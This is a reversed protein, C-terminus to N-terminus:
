LAVAEDLLLLDCAFGLEERPAIGMEIIIRTGEPGTCLLIQDATEKIVTFGLGMSARKSWGKLLTARPLDDPDIGSGQDEIRIRLKGDRAGVSAWGGNGHLLANTAAESACLGMDAARGGPMGLDFAVERVADRVTRIDAERRIPIQPRDVPWEGAMEEPDCLRMKGSTVAYLVEGHIRRRLAETREAERSQYLTFLPLAALGAYLFLPEQISPSFPRGSLYNDACLVGLLEEGVIIPIIALSNVPPEFTFAPYEDRPHNSFFFPRDRRVVDLMPTRRETIPIREVGTERRGQRDIGFVRDLRAHHQEYLFVGAREVHLDERLASVLIEVARAPDPERAICRAASVLAHLGPTSSSTTEASFSPELSVM